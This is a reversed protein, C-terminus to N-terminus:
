RNGAGSPSVTGPFVDHATNMEAGPQPHRVRNREAHGSQQGDREEGDGARHPGRFGEGGEAYHWLGEPRLRGPFLGAELIAKIESGFAFSTDGLAYYPNSVWAIGAMFLRRGLRDWIAFAFMGNFRHVCQPGYEEFAHLIVETDSHTRFRHGRALLTERM